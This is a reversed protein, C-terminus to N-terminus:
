TAAQGKGSSAAARRPALRAVAAILEAPEIPKTLYTQFGAAVLRLEGRSGAYATLALAPVRGGQEPSRARLLQILSYGDEVPM